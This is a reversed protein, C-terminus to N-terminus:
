ARGSQSSLDAIRVARSLVNSQPPSLEVPSRYLARKRAEDMLLAAASIAGPVNSLNWLEEYLRRLEADPIVLSTGDSLKFEVAERTM